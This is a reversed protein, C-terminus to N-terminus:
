QLGHFSDWPRIAIPSFEIPGVSYQHNFLKKQCLRVSHIYDMIFLCAPGIFVTRRM